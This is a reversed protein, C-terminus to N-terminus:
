LSAGGGIRDRGPPTQTFLRFLSMGANITLAAGYRANADVRASNVIRCINISM